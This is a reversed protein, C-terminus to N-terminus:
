REKKESAKGEGEGSVTIGGPGPSSSAPRGDSSIEATSRWCRPEGMKDRTRSVSVEVAQNLPAWKRRSARSGFSEDRGVSSAAAVGSSRVSFQIKM